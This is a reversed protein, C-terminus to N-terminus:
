CPYGYRTAAARARAIIGEIVASKADAYDNVASWQERALRRKVAAYAEREEPVTRLRDRLLLYREIEASWPPLVHLNAGRAPTRLCRHDDHEPERIRLEYGTAALDPLWADEDAPDEVVILIDILPKATLGPVSTSGIHEIRLLRQGLAARIREGHEAYRAPWGPDPVVLVIRGPEPPGITVARLREDSEEAAFRPRGGPM